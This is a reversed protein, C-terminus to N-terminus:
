KNDIIESKPQKNRVDYYSQYYEDPAIMLSNDNLFQNNKRNRIEIPSKSNNETKYIDNNYHNKNINNNNKIVLNILEKQNKSRKEEFNREIESMREKMYNMIVNEDNIDGSNNVLNSQIYRFKDIEPTYNIRTRNFENYVAYPSPIM